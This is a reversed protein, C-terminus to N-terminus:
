YVSVNVVRAQFSACYGHGDFPNEIIDSEACEPCICIRMTWETYPLYGCWRCATCPPSSKVAMGGGHLAGASDESVTQLM